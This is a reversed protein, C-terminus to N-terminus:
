SLTRRFLDALPMRWGPLLDGGDLFEDDEDIVVITKASTYVHVDRTEPRVLWVSRVGYRFYERVKRFVEGAVDHPSLVEVALDPVVEWDGEEPIERNTPWRDFSVFAVDPQRRLPRAQDLVFRFEMVATGLGHIDTFERLADYIRRAIVMSYIGMEPKEVIEGDVIEYFADPDSLVAALEQPSPESTKTRIM